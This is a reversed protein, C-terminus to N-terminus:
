ERGPKRNSHPRMSDIIGEFNSAIIPQMQSVILQTYGKQVQENVYLSFHPRREVVFEHRSRFFTLVISLITRRCGVSDESLFDLGLNLLIAHKRLLMDVKEQHRHM